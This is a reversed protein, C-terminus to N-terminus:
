LPLDDVRRFPPKVVLRPRPTRVRVWDQLTTGSIELLALMLRATVHADADARHHDSFGAGLVADAVVPLRYSPLGPVVARAVRVTDVFRVAPFSGLECVMWATEAMSLDASCVNHGVAVTQGLHALLRPGWHAWSQADRVDGPGIGTLEMNWAAFFDYPAPPRVFKHRPEALAGDVCRASGISVISAHSPNALEFDIALFSTM